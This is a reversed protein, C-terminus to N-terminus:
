LIRTGEFDFGFRLEDLGEAAMARRLDTPDAAMFM